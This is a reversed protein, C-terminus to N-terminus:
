VSESIYIRQNRFWSIMEAETADAPLGSFRSFAHPSIIKVMIVPDDPLSEEPSDCLEREKLARRLYDEDENLYIDYNSTVETFDSIRETRFKSVASFGFPTYLSEKVPILFCFPVAKASMIEFCKNLVSTMCGKNREDKKTAVAYIYFIEATQGNRNCVTFPNLHAMSIIEDHSKMGIIINDRCRDEYYWDLFPGKDEPFVEEYLAKTEYKKNQDTLVCLENM